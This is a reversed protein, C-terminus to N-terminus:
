KDGQSMLNINREANDLRQSKDNVEILKYRELLIAAFWPFETSFWKPDLNSTIFTVRKHNYRHRILKKFWPASKPQAIEAGVEDLVLFQVDLLKKAVTKGTSTEHNWPQTFVAHLDSPEHFYGGVPGRRMGQLACQVALTSKGHGYNKGHFLIGIGLKETEHMSRIYNQVERKLDEGVRDWKFDMYESFEAAVISSSRIARTPKPDLEARRDEDDFEM